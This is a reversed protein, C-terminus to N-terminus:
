RIKPAVFPGVVHTNDIIEIGLFEFYTGIRYTNELGMSHVKEYKWLISRYGITGGDKLEYKIPFNLGIFIILIILIIIKKKRM